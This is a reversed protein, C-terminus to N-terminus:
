LLKAAAQATNGFVSCADRRKSKGESGCYSFSRCESTTDSKLAFEPLEHVRRQVIQLLYIM